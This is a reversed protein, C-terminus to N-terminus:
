PFSSGENTWLPFDSYPNKRRDVTQCTRGQGVARVAREAEESNQGRFPSPVARSRVQSRAIGLEVM